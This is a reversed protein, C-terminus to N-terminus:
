GQVGLKALLPTSIRGAMRSGLALSPGIRKRYFCLTQRPATNCITIWSWKPREVSVELTGLFIERRMVQGGTQSGSAARPQPGPVGAANRGM